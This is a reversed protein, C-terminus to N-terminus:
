RNMYFKITYALDESIDKLNQNAWRLYGQDVKMIDIFTKGAYKGFPMKEMLVPMKSLDKMRWIIGDEGLSPDSLKLRIQLFKFLARLVAVDGAADHATIQDEGPLLISKLGLKYRLYQLRHGEVDKLLHQAVRYTDIYDGLDVGERKMVGLDFKANHAVAIGQNFVDQIESRTKEFPELNDVMDQTIHHVEMAEVSIPEVPKYLKCVIPEDNIAYALQVLRANEKQTTETDFFILNSM